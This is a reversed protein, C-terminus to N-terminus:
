APADMQRGSRTQRAGIAGALVGGLEMEIKEALRASPDDVVGGAWGNWTAYIVVSGAPAPADGIVITPKDDSLADVVTGGYLEVLKSLLEGRGWPAICEGDVALRLRVGGPAARKACNVATVLMAQRTRNALVSPGVDVQIIYGAVRAEVEEPTLGGLLDILSTRSYTERDLPTM